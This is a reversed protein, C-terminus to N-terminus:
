NKHGIFICDILANYVNVSNMTTLIIIPIYFVYICVYILLYVELFPSGDSHSDCSVSM